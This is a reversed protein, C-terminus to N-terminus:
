ARGRSEGLVLGQGILHAVRIPEPILSRTASLRTIELADEPKIGYYQIYIHKGDGMEVPHPDGAKEICAWRAAKGELHDLANDMESLDPLRRVVTIVPLHTESFLREIDVLNFGAFGLGDIMIVRLDKFRCDRVLEILKDTADLGDVEVHTTLVGDLFSGGRFVCGIVLARKDERTFPADDVGLIRIEDKIAYFNAEM